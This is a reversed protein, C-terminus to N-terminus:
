FETLVGVNFVSSTFDYSKNLGVIQRFETTLWVHNIGYENDLRRIAQRDLWDVLFNIGGAAVLTGAGGFRPSKSDDRIEMFTFYGGGGEIYPVIPQTDSYQFRYVATLQNPLMLFTYQEEPQDDARRNPDDKAFIGTGQAIFIGSGFKLGLRGIKTTLTKEYDGFLVPLQDDTYISAFTAPPNTSNNSLEPPAFMGVRFSALAHRGSEETTYHFEGNASISAPKEMDSRGSFTVPEPAGYKKARTDEAVGYFYEGTEENVKLPRQTPPPPAAAVIGEEKAGPYPYEAAPPAEEEESNLLEAEVLDSDLSDEQAPSRAAKAALPSALALFLFTSIIFRSSTKQKLV